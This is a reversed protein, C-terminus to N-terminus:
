GIAVLAVRAVAYLVRNRIICAKESIEGRDLRAVNAATVNNNATMIKNAIAKKM